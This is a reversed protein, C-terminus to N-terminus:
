EMDFPSDPTFYPLNHKEIRSPDVFTSTYYQKRGIWNTGFGLRKRYIEQYNSYYEIFSSQRFEDEISIDDESNSDDDDDQM